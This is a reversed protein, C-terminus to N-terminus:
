SKQMFVIFIAIYFKSYFENIQSAPVSNSTTTCNTNSLIVTIRSFKPIQFPYIKYFM